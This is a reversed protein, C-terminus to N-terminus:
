SISNRIDKKAQEWDIFEDNGNNLEREREQLFKKHWDPSILSGAQECLDQWLAEMARLKESTSMKDLPLSIDM